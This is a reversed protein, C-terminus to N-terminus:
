RQFNDLWESLNGNLEMLNDSNTGMEEALASLPISRVYSGSTRWHPKELQKFYQCNISGRVPEFGASPM